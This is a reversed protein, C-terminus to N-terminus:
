PKECPSKGGVVGISKLTNISEAFPSDMPVDSFQQQTPVPPPTIGMRGCLYVMTKYVMAAVQQRNAFDQPCFTPLVAGGQRYATFARSGTIPMPVPTLQLDYTYGEVSEQKEGAPPTMTEMVPLLNPLDFEVWPSASGPRQAYAKDGLVRPVGLRAIRETIFGKWRWSSGEWKWVQLGWLPGPDTSQAEPAGTAVLWKPIDRSAAVHVVTQHFDGQAMIPGPRFKPGPKSIGTPFAATGSICNVALVSFQNQWFAWPGAYTLAPGFLATQDYQGQSVNITEIPM